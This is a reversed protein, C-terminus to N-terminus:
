SAHEHAYEECKCCVVCEEYNGEFGKTVVHYCHQTGENECYGGSCESM